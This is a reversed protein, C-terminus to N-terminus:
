YVRFSNVGSVYRNGARDADIMQYDYTGRALGTLLVNHAEVFRLDLATFRAAAPNGRPWYKLQTDSPDGATRWTVRARGSGTTVVISRPRVM